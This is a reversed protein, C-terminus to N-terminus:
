DVGAEVLAGVRTLTDRAVGVGAAVLLRGNADKASRPYSITKEIDKITILGKLMFDDDVLPLKEIKHQALIEQAQQLTTGEPATILGDKTM